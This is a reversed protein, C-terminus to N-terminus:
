RHFMPGSKDQFDVRNKGIIWYTSVFVHKLKGGSVCLNTFCLLPLLFFYNLLNLYSYILVAYIKFIM